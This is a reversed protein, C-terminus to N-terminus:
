SIYVGYAPGSPINSCMHPFNVISFNFDDRKDYLKYSLVGNRDFFFLVDLYSVPRQVDVTELRILENTTEKLELEPPYIRPVYKAFDPNNQSQLGTMLISFHITLNELRM